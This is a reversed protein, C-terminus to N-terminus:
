AVSEAYKADIAEYKKVVKRKRYWSYLMGLGALGVWRFRRLQYGTNTTEDLFLWAALGAITLALGYGLDRKHTSYAQEYNQVDNSIVESLAKAQSETLGYEQFKAITKPYNSIELYIQRAKPYPLKPSQELEM